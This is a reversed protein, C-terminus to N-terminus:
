AATLGHRLDAIAGNALRRVDTEGKQALRRLRNSLRTRLEEANDDALFPDASVFLWSKELAAHVLEDMEQAAEM